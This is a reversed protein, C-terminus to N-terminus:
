QKEIELSRWLFWYESNGNHLMLCSPTLRLKGLQNSVLIEFLITFSLLFVRKMGAISLQTIDIAGVCIWKATDMGFAVPLSQWLRIIMLFYLQLQLVIRLVLNLAVFSLLWGSCIFFWLFFSRCDWHETAKLVKSIM